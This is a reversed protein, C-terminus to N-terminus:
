EKSETTQNGGAPQWRLLEIVAGTTRRGDDTVFDLWSDHRRVLQWEVNPESPNVWRSGPPFKDNKGTPVSAPEVVSSATSSSVTGRNKPARNDSDRLAPGTGHGTGGYVPPVAARDRTVTGGFDPARHPV